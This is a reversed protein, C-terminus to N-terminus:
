PHRQVLGSKTWPWHLSYCAMLIINYTLPPWLIPLAFPQSTKM